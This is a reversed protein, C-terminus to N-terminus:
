SSPWCLETWTSLHPSRDGSEPSFSSQRRTSWVPRKIPFTQLSRPALNRFLVGSKGGQELNKPSLYVVPFNPLPPQRIQMHARSTGDAHLDVM